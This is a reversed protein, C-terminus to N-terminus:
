SKETKKTGRFSTNPSRRTATLFVKFHSTSLQFSNKKFFIRKRPLKQNFNQYSQEFSLNVYRTHYFFFLFQNSVVCTHGNQQLQNYCFKIAMSITRLNTFTQCKEDSITICLVCNKYFHEAMVVFPNQLESNFSADYDSNPNFKKKTTFFFLLCLYM